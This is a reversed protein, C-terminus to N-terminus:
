HRDVADNKLQYSKFQEEIQLIKLMPAYNGLKNCVDQMEDQKATGEVSDKLKQIENGCERDYLAMDQIRNKM